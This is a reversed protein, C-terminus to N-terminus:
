YATLALVKVAKRKLIALAVFTYVMFAYVMFTYVMFTYVMFAYVMFALPRYRLHFNVSFKFFRGASVGWM